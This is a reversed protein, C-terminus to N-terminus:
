KTVPLRLLSGSLAPFCRFYALITTASTSAHYTIPIHAKYLKHVITLAAYDTVKSIKM